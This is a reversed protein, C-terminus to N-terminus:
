DPVPVEDTRFVQVGHPMVPHEFVADTSLTPFFGIARITDDGTNRVGHPAEAPVFLMDLASVPRTQEGVLGEGSGSLLVVVEDADHTHLALSEGPDIEFYVVSLSEIEPRGMFPLQSRWRQSPDHDVWEQDTELENLQLAFM